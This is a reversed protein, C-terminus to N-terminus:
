PLYKSQQVYDRLPRLRRRSSLTLASQGQLIIYQLIWAFM